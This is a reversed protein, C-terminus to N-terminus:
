CRPYSILRPIDSPHIGVSIFTLCDGRMMYCIFWVYSATVQFQFCGKQNSVASEVGLM